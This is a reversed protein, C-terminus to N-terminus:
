YLKGDETFEYENAEITEVIVAESTLYEYEKTLIVRYDELISKLFEADIEGKEYDRNTENEDYGDEDLKEPYVTSLNALISLYEKATKYTERIVGHETIIKNATDEAHEIFDGRCYSGRGIDFEDLKLLITNANDYICDWWEHMVNLDYMNEFVTQKADDSLEDFPYVKTKKIDIRMETELEAVAPM